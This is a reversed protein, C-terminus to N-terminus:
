EFYDTADVLQIYEELSICGDLDCSKNICNVSTELGIYRLMVDNNDDLFWAYPNILIDYKDCKTKYRKVKIPANLIFDNLNNM